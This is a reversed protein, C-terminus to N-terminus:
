TREKCMLELYKHREDPDIAAVIDFEDGEYTLRWGHSVDTRYHIYIRFDVGTEERMSAYYENGRLPMVNAWITAVDTWTIDDAGYDGIAKVPKQLTVRQRLKGLRM